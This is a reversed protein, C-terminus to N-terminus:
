VGPEPQHMMLNMVVSREVVTAALADMLSWYRTDLIDLVQQRQEQTLDTYREM